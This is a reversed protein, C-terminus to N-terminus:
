KLRRVKEMEDAKKLQQLKAEKEKIEEMLRRREALEKKASPPTSSAQRRVVQDEELRVKKASSLVPSKFPGLVRKRVDGSLQQLLYKFLIYLICNSVHTTVPPASRPTEAACPFESVLWYVSRGAFEKQALKSSSM